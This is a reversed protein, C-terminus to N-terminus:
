ATATAKAPEFDQLTGGRAFHHAFMDGILKTAAYASTPMIVMAILSGVGPIAKFLSKGVRYGVGTSLTSGLTAAILSRGLADEFPVGYNKALATIMKLQLGGIVFVDLAPAPILGAGACYRSYESVISKAKEAQDTVEAVVVETTVVEVAKVTTPEDSKYVWDSGATAAAKTSPLKFAPRAKKKVM